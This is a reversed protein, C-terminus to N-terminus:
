HLQATAVNDNKGASPWMPMQGIHSIQLM